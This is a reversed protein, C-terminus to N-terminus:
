ITTKNKKNELHKFKSRIAKEVKVIMLISMAIVLGLGLSVNWTQSLNIFSGLVGLVLLLFGTRIMEAAAYKQSFDWREQTKMSSPTRYGYLSNIKKPPYKKMFFGMIIFVGGTLATVLVLDNLLFENM